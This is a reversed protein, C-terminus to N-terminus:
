PVIRFEKSVIGSDDQDAQGGPAEDGRALSRYHDALERHSQAARADAALEAATREEESRREFYDRTEPDM